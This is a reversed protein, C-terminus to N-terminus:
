PNISEWSRTNDEVIRGRVWHGFAMSVKEKNESYDLYALVKTRFQEQAEFAKEGDLWMAWSRLISSM